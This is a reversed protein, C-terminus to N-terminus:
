LFSKSTCPVIHTTMQAYKNHMSIMGYTSYGTGDTFIILSPFVSNGSCTRLFWECFNKQSSLWNASTRARLTFTVSLLSTHTYSEARQATQFDTVYLYEGKSTQPNTFIIELIILEWQPTPVSGPWGHNNPQVNYIGINRLWRDFAPFDRDPIRLHLITRPDCSTRWLESGYARDFILRVNAMEFCTLEAM